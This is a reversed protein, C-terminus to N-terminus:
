HCSAWITATLTPALRALTVVTHALVGWGLSYREDLLKAFGLEILRNFEVDTGAEVDAM